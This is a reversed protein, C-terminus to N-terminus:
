QGPVNLYPIAREYSTPRHKVLEQPDPIEAHHLAIAAEALVDGM